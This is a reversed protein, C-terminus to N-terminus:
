ASYIKIYQSLSKDLHKIYKYQKQLSIKYLVSQISIIGLCM